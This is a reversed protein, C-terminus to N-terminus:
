EQPSTMMRGHGHGDRAPARPSLMRAAHPRSALASKVVAEIENLEAESATALRRQLADALGTAALAQLTAILFCRFGGRNALGVPLGM